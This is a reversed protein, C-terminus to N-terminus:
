SRRCGALRCRGGHSARWAAMARQAALARTPGEGSYTLGHGAAARCTWAGKQRPFIDSPDVHHPPFYGPQALALTPALALLATLASLTKRMAATELAGLAALNVVQWGARLPTTMTLVCVKRRARPNGRKM